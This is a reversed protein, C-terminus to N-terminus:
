LPMPPLLVAKIEGRLMTTRLETENLLIKRAFMAISAKIDEYDKMGLNCPHGHSWEVQPPFAPPFFSDASRIVPFADLYRSERSSVQLTSGLRRVNSDEVM